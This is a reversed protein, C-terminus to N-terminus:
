VSDLTRTEREDALLGPSPPCLTYQLKLLLSQHAIKSCLQLHDIYACLGRKDQLAEMSTTWDPRHLGKVKSPLCNGTASLKIQVQPIPGTSLWSFHGLGGWAFAFLLQSYCSCVGLLFIQSGWLGAILDGWAVKM